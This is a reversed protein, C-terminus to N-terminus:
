LEFDVQQPTLKKDKQNGAVMVPPLSSCDSTGRAVPRESAAQEAPAPGASIVLPMELPAEEEKPKGRSEIVKKALRLAGCVAKVFAVISVALMALDAAMDLGELDMHTWGAIGHLVMTMLNGFACLASAMRDRRTHFPWLAGMALVNFLLIATAVSNLTNCNETPACGVVALSFSTLLEVLLYWKRGPIYEDFLLDYQKHYGPYTASSTWTGTKYTMVWLLRAAFAQPIPNDKEEYVARPPSHNLVYWMLSLLIGVDAALIALALVFWATGSVNMLVFLSSTVVTQLFFMHVRISHAPFYFQAAMNDGLKASRGTLWITTGHVCWTSAVIVSNSVLSGAFVDSGEPGTVAVSVGTPHDSQSLSTMKNAKCELLRVILGTRGAQLLSGGGDALASSVIAVAVSADHVMQRVQSIREIRDRISPRVKFTVDILGYYPYMKQTPICQCYEWHPEECPITEWISYNNFVCQSVNRPEGPGWNTYYARQGKYPPYQWRWVGDPGAKLGMWGKTNGYLETNDQSSFVMSSSRSFLEPFYSRCRDPYGWVSGTFNAKRMNSQKEGDYLVGTSWVFRSCVSKMMTIAWRIKTTGATERVGPSVTIRASISKLCTAFSKCGDSPGIFIQDPGLLESKETTNDMLTLNVPFYTFPSLVQFEFGDFFFSDWTAMLDPSFSINKFIAVPEWGNVVISTILMPPVTNARVSVTGSFPGDSANATELTWAVVWVTDSTVNGCTVLFISGRVSSANVFTVRVSVTGNNEVAGSANGLRVVINDCDRAGATITATLHTVVLTENPFTVNFVDFEFTGNVARSLTADVNGSGHCEVLGSILLLFVLLYM